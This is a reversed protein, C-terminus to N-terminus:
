FHLFDPLCSMCSFNRDFHILKVASLFLNRSSEVWGSGRTSGVLPSHVNQDLPGHLDPCSREIMSQTTTSIERQKEAPVLGAIVVTHDNLYSRVFADRALFVLHYNKNNTQCRHSQIYHVQVLHKM